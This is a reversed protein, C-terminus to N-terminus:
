QLLESLDAATTVPAQCVYRRCVYAAPAGDVPERGDLLTTSLSVEEDPDRGSVVRNPLYPRLVSRLLERTAPDRRSGVIAIELPSSLAFDAVSLLRGFALPYRRM